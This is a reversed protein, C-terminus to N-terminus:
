LGASKWSRRDALGNRQVADYLLQAAGPPTHDVFGFVEIRLLNHPQM